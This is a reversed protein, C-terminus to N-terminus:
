VPVYIVWHSKWFLPYDRQVPLLEKTKATESRWKRGTYNTGYWTVPDQLPGIGSPRKSSSNKHSLTSQVLLDRLSANRRYAIVPPNPFTKKAAM